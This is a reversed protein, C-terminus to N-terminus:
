GDAAASRLRRICAHKIIIGPLAINPM